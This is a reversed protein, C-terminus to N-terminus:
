CQFRCTNTTHFCHVFLFPHLVSCAASQLHTCLLMRGQVHSFSPGFRACAPYPANAGREGEARSELGFTGEGPVPAANKMDERLGATVASLEKDSNLTALMASAEVPDSAADPRLLSAFSAPADSPREPFMMGSMSDGAGMTGAPLSVYLYTSTLTHTHTHTHTCLLPGLWVHLADGSPQCMYRIRAQCM